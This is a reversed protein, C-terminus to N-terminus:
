RYQRTTAPISHMKMGNPVTRPIKVIMTSFRGETLAENPDPPRCYRPSNLTAMQVIQMAVELPANGDNIAAIVRHSPNPRAKGGGSFYASSM